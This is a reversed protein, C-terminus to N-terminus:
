APSEFDGPRRAKRTRTGGQAYRFYSRALEWGSSRIRGDWRSTPVATSSPAHADVGRDLASGVSALAAGVAAAVGAGIDASTAVSIGVFADPFRILPRIRSVGVALAFSYRTSRSMRPPPYWFLNGQAM